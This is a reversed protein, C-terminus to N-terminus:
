IIRPPQTLPKRISVADNHVIARRALSANMRAKRFITQLKKKKGKKARKEEREKKREKKRQRKREKERERKKERERNDTLRPEGRKEQM